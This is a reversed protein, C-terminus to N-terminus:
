EVQEFEIRAADAWLKELQYYERLEETFIHVIVPSYDLIIWGSSLDPRTGEKLGKSDFFKRLDRAMSRCHIQSSGSTVVFYDFYSNVASLDMVVTEDAKKEDLLGYCEGLIAVLQANDLSKIM